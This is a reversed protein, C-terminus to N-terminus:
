ESFVRSRFPWWSYCSPRHGSATATWDFLGTSTDHVNKYEDGYEGTLKRVGLKATTHDGIFSVMADWQCGWIMSSKVGGSTFSKCAKYLGYWTSTDSTGAYNGYSDSGSTSAATLEMVGARCVVGSDYGLEYRGVYFGGYKGVSEIMGNFENKLDAAFDALSSFSGAKAYDTADYRTGDNGVVVAPERYSKSNPTSMSAFSGKGWKDTKISFNSDAHNMSTEAGSEYMTTVDSVPIWVFENDRSDKIVLGKKETGELYDFGTPIPVVGIDTDAKVVMKVSSNKLNANGLADIENSNLVNVISGDAGIQLSVSKSVQENGAKDTARTAIYYTVGTRLKPILSVKSYWIYNETDEERVGYSINAIGSQTEVGDVIISDTQKAIISLSNADGSVVPATDTPKTGDFFIKDYVGQTKGVNDKFFAYVIKEGDGSTLRYNIVSENFNKWTPEEGRTETIFLYKAYISQLYLSVDQTNTYVKNNNIVIKSDVLTLVDSSVYQMNVLDNRSVASYVTGNGVMDEVYIVINREVDSFIKDEYAFQPNMENLHTIADRANEKEGSGSDPNLLIANYRTYEAYYSEYKKFYDEVTDGKINKDGWLYKELLETDSFVEDSMTYYEPFKERASQSIPFNGNEKIKCRIKSIGTQGDDLYLEGSVYRITPPIDDIKSVVVKRVIGVKEPNEVYITYIGNETFTIVDGYVFYNVIGGTGESEKFDSASKSGKLWKFNWGEAEGIKVDPISVLIDAKDTWTIPNGLINIQFPVAANPDVKEGLLFPTLTYYKVGQYECPKTVYINLTGENIIYGRDKDDLHIKGLKEIDVYYYEGVDDEDLQSLADGSSLIQILESEASKMEGGEFVVPLTNNKAFYEIVYQKVEQLDSMFKSVEKDKGINKISIVATTTIILIVAIAIVLVTLSYGKKDKLM